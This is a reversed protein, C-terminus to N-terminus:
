GGSATAGGRRPLDIRPSPTPRTSRAISRGAAALYSPGPRRVTPTWESRAHERDGDVTVAAFFPDFHAGIMFRIKSPPACDKMSLARVAVPTVHQGGVVHALVLSLLM